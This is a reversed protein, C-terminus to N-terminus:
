KLIPIKGGIISQIKICYNFNLKRDLNRKVGRIFKERGKGEGSSPYGNLHCFQYWNNISDLILLFSWFTSFYALIKKFDFILDNSEIKKSIKSKYSVTLNKDIM